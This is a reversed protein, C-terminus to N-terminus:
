VSEVCLIIYKQIFKYVGKRLQHKDNWEFYLNISSLILYSVEEDRNRKLKERGEESTGDEVPNVTDIEGERVTKGGPLHDRSKFETRNEIDWSRSERKGTTKM